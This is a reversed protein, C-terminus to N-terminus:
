NRKLIGLGIGIAGVCLLYSFFGSDLWLGFLVGVAFAILIFGWLQHRRCM